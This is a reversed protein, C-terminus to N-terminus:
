DSNMAVFSITFTSGEGPKSDLTISAGHRQAIRRCVALGIGSGEYQDKSHLRQLLLFIREADNMDIGIGKDSVSIHHIGDITKCSIHIAPSTESSFKIANSLLNQFLLSLQTVNGTITPLEDYSIQAGSSNIASDLAAMAQLLPRRLSVPSTSINPADLKAYLLLDHILQQMRQTNALIISLYRESDKDLKDKNKAILLDCFGIITRLPEQLDHSAIYAFQMLDFNSRMLSANLDEEKSKIHEQNNVCDIFLLYQVAPDPHSSIANLTLRALFESSDKRRLLHQTESDRNGRRRLLQLVHQAGDEEHPFLNSLHLGALEKNEYGLVHSCDNVCYIVAGADDLCLIARNKILGITEKLFEHYSGPPTQEPQEQFIETM